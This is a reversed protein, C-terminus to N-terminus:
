RLEGGESARSIKIGTGFMTNELMNDLRDERIFAGERAKRSDKGRLIREDNNIRGLYDGRFKFRRM